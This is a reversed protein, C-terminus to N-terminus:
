SISNLSSPYFQSHISRKLAIYYIINIRYWLLQLTMSRSMYIYRYIYLFYNVFIKFFNLLMCPQNAADNIIQCHVSSFVFLQLLFIVPLIKVVPCLAAGYESFKPGFKKCNLVIYSPHIWLQFLPVLFYAWLHSHFLNILMM